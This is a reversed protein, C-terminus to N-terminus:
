RTRVMKRFTRKQGAVTITRQHMQYEARGDFSTANVIRYGALSHWEALVHRTLPKNPTQWPRERRPTTGKKGQEKAARMLANAVQRRSRSTTEMLQDIHLAPVKPEQDDFQDLDITSVGTTGHITESTQM